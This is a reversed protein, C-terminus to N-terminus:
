VSLPGPNFIGRRRPIVPVDIRQETHVIFDHRVTEGSDFSFELAVRPTKDALVRFQFIAPENVFAPKVRVSTIQLGALNKCSHYISVLLMAGLLFTLIFGLNNNYNASGALLAALILLFLYGQRTPLFRTRERRMRQRHTQHRNM